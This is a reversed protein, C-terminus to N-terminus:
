IRSRKTIRLICYLMNYKSGAGYIRVLYPCHSVLHGLDLSYTGPKVWIEPVDAAATASVGAQTHTRRNTSSNRNNRSNRSNSSNSSNNSNNSNSSNSSSNISSNRSRNRSNNNHRLYTCGEETRSALDPFHVTGPVLIRLPPPPLATHLTSSLFPLLATRRARTALYSCTYLLVDAPLCEFHITSM